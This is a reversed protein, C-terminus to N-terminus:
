YWKEGFIEFVDFLINLQKIIIWILTKGFISFCSLFTNINCNVDRNM